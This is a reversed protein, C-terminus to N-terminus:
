GLKLATVGAIILVIGLYRLLSTADGVVFVGVRFTGAAGLGMWMAFAVPRASPAPMGRHSSLAFCPATEWRPLYADRWSLGQGWLRSKAPYVATESLLLWAYAWRLM